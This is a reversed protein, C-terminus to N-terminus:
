YTLSKDFIIKFLPALPTAISKNITLYISENPYSNNATVILNYIETITPIDFHSLVYKCDHM